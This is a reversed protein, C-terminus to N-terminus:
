AFPLTQDLATLRLMDAVHGRPRTFRLRDGQGLARRGARVFAGLGVSDIFDLGTIDILIRAADSAEAEFLAVEFGACTDTDLEGELRIEFVPGRRSTAISLPPTPNASM